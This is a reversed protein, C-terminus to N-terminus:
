EHSAPTEMNDFLVSWLTPLEKVRLFYFVSWVREKGCSYSKSKDITSTAQIKELLTSCFANFRKMGSEDEVIADLLSIALKKTIESKESNM